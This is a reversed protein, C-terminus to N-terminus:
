GASCGAGAFVNIAPCALYEGMSFSARRELMVRSVVVARSKAVAQLAAAAVVVRGVVAVAVERSFVRVEDALTIPGVPLGYSKMM